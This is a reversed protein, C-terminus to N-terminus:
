APNQQDNDYRTTQQQPSLHKVYHAILIHLKEATNASNVLEDGPLVNKHRRIKKQRAPPLIFAKEKLHHFSHTVSDQSQLDPTEPAKRQVATPPAATITRQSDRWNVYCHAFRVAATAAPDVFAAFASSRRRQSALAGCLSSTASGEASSFSFFSSSKM